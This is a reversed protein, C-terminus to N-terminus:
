EIDNDKDSLWNDLYLAKTMELLTVVEWTSIGNSKADIVGDRTRILCVLHLIEPKKEQIYNVVANIDDAGLIEDITIKRKPLKNSKNSKM